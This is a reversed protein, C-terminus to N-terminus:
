WACSVTPYATYQCLSATRFDPAKLTLRCEIVHRATDALGQVSAGNRFPHKPGAVRASHLAPVEVRGSRLVFQATKSVSVRYNGVSDWLYHERLASYHISISGRTYPTRGRQQRCWFRRTRRRWTPESRPPNCWPLSLLLLARLSGHHV